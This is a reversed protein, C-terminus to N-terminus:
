GLRGKIANTIKRMPRTITWSKSLMIKSITIELEDIKLQKAALQQNLAEIKSNPYQLDGIMRDVRLNLKCIEENAAAKQEELVDIQWSQTATKNNLENIQDQKDRIEKQQTIVQELSDLLDNRNVTPKASAAKIQSYAELWEHAHTSILWNARISEQSSLLIRQRLEPNNILEKIKEYWQEESQALLGECGENIIDSYPPLDAYVGPIGMASYEFFKIASKSRNFSNDCLPAIAIDAQIQGMCSVFMEYNFTQVPQHTVQTLKELGTPPEIGYFHFEIEAGFSEALQFLPKSISELDPRHSATGMYFIRVPDGPSSSRLLRFDWLQDDIYNPLVWVNPNLKQVAKKLPETTVTVGDVDLLAHLFAPLGSAYYTSIRDPHDTPLALLDDDLDMVVPKGVERAKNIVSKYADFHTSFDRQFLVLDCDQIISLDIGQENVGSHVQIDAYKLPNFIRYHELASIGVSYSYFAIKQIL